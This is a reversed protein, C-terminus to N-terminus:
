DVTPATGGRLAAVISRGVAEAVPPPLANGIQRYARTKRGYIRWDDPIAQLIATQRVSLRPWHDVPFGASPSEDSLSAGEVGLAAWAKKSGTPGLDGGGRNDSGGILAPGPRDAAAAWQEAGPWGNAGMSAGLAQGVTPPPGPHPEPWVFDYGYGEALAVLFGSRRHQPVGFDAADLVRWFTRYGLHELEAEIWSRDDAYNNDQVLGELNELMLAKPRVAMLVSIAARLLSREHDDSDPRAVAAAAKIRPMGGSILDIDLVKRLDPEDEDLPDFSMLDRCRVDWQPRNLRITRCAFENNDILMVPDFGARELGLAQAGSGACLELSTFRTM